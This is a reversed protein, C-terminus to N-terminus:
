QTPVAGMEKGEKVDVSSFYIAEDAAVKSLILM